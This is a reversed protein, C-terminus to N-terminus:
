PMLQHKGQKFFNMIRSERRIRKEQSLVSQFRIDDHIKAHNSQNQMIPKNKNPIVNTQIEQKTNSYQKQLPFVPNIM